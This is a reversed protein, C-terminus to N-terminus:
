ETKSKHYYILVIGCIVLIMASYAVFNPIGLTLNLVYGVMVGLAIGILLLGIKFSNLHNKNQNDKSKSYVLAPDMGMEILTIKDQDKIQKERFKLYFLWGVFIMGFIPVLNLDKLDGFM